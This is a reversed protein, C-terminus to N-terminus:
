YDEKDLIEDYYHRAIGDGDDEDPGDDNLIANCYDEDEYPYFGDIDGTELDMISEIDEALMEEQLLKDFPKM